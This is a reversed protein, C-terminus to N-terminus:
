LSLCDWDSDIPIDVSYDLPAVVASNEEGERKLHETVTYGYMTGDANEKGNFLHLRDM